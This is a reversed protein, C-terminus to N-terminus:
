QAAELIQNAHDSTKVKKFVQEINGNEDIVFTTRNTGMKKKGYMNKEGFVGYKNVIAKEPDAVLHFPLSYKNAFKDHSTVDDISVGIVEYGKDVLDQYHDRLNCAEKTCGPTDDKPYFYLIVKSGKFDSLSVTEGKQNQGTFDPAPDGVKLDSM